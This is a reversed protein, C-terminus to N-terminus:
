TLGFIFVSARTTTSLKKRMRFSLTIIGELIAKIPDAALWNAKAAALERLGSASV